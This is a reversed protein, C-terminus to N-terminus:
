ELIDALSADSNNNESIYLGKSDLTIGVLLLSCIATKVKVPDAKPDIIEGFNLMEFIKDLVINNKEWNPNEKALMNIEPDGKIVMNCFFEIFEKNELGLAGIIDEKEFDIEIKM